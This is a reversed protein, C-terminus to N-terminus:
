SRSGNASVLSRSLHEVPVRGTLSDYIEGYRGLCVDLTFLRRVRRRGRRAMRSRMKSDTLLQLCADAVARPNRPPVLIGVGTVAEGVGGVDTAIMARGCAMAEIVSYPFGESISTSVVLHGAHYADTISPIRGEFCASEGLELREHVDLCERMYDANGKPTGGFMRLKADPLEARIMAFARLMTKVDKLPDIRGVWAITPSEPESSASFFNPPDIGNYILQIKDPDAGNAHEWSRNYESGPAIVDAMQYAAATLQKFFGLMFARQHHPLTDPGYAIYRERLYLGHETLLFPTGRTWKAAMALLVGVGNSAAHCLDVDPPTVALPRLLHELLRLSMVADAVTPHLPLRDMIRGKPVPPALALLALRVADESILYQRLVGDQAYKFCQKLHVPFDVARVPSMIDRLLHHLTNCVDPDLKGMTRVTATPGWLPVSRVATVNAPLDWASTEGGTTTIADIVYEHPAMGRVLQDCWVSVGGDHYPYTGETILCVQLIREADDGIPMVGHDQAEM